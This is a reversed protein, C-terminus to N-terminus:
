KGNQWQNWVSFTCFFRDRCTAGVAPVQMTNNNNSLDMVIIIIIVQHHDSSSDQKFRVIMKMVYELFFFLYIGCMIVLSKWLHSTDGDEGLGFTQESLLYLLVILFFMGYSILVCVVKCSIICNSTLNIYLYQIIMPECQVNLNFIVPFRKAQGTPPSSGNKRGQPKLNLNRARCWSSIEM